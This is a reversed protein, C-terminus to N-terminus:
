ELTYEHFRPLGPWDATASAVMPLERARYTGAWITVLSGPPLEHEFDLAVRASSMIQRGDATRVLRQKDDIAAQEAVVPDAFVPGYSNEGEKVRYSVLRNHPMLRAPLKM